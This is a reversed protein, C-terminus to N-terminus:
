VSKLASLSITKFNYVDTYYYKQLSLKVLPKSTQKLNVKKASLCVQCVFETKHTLPKNTTAAKM